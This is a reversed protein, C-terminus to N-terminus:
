AETGRQTKAFEIIRAERMMSAFKKEDQGGLFDCQVEWAYELANQSLNTLDLQEYVDAASVLMRFAIEPSDRRIKLANRVKINARNFRKQEETLEM